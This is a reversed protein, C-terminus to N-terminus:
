NKKESSLGQYIINAKLIHEFPINHIEGKEDKLCIINESIGQLIGKFKRQGTVSASLRIRVLQGQFREYDTLQFLPRDLGPSSVELFFKEDPIMEDEDLFHSVKKSVIECDRVIIGGLSDIYIRLVTRGGEQAFELGVFQYGLSDVIKRVHNQLHEVITDKRRM